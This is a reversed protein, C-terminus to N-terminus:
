SIWTDVVMRKIIPLDVLHLTPIDICVTSVDLNTPSLKRPNQLM